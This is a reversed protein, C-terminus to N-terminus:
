FSHKKNQSVYIWSSGIIENNGYGFIPIMIGSWLPLMKISKIIFPIILPLVLPNLGSGEKIFEKTESYINEAWTTFQNNQEGLGFNLDQTNVNIDENTSNALLDNIDDPLQICESPATELM